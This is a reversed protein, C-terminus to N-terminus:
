QKKLHDNVWEYLKIDFENLEQIKDLDEKTCPGAAWKNASKNEYFMKARKWGLLERLEAVTENFKESTGVHIFYNELNYKAQKLNAETIPNQRMGSLLRTQHNQFQLDIDESTMMYESMSIERGRWEDRNMVHHYYSIVRDVPNRLVTVYRRDEFPFLEKNFSFHGMIIKYKEFESSSFGSLEHTSNFKPHRNYAFFLEKARYNNQIILRLSTGATKPLHLIIIPYEPMNPLYLFYNLQIIINYIRANFTTM